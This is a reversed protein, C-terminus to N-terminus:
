MRAAEGAKSERRTSGRLGASCGYEHICFRGAQGDGMGRQEMLESGSVAIVLRIGPRMEGAWGGTRLGPGVSSSVSQSVFNWWQGVVVGCELRVDVFGGHLQMVVLVVGGVNGFQVARDLLM